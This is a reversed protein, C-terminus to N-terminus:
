ADHKLKKGCPPVHPCMNNDHFVELGPYGQTAYIHNMVFHCHTREDNIRKKTIEIHSPKFCRPGNGCLHSITKAGHGKKSPCVKKLNKRGYDKWAALHYCHFIKEGKRSRRGNNSKTLWCQSDEIIGDVKIAKAKLELWTKELDDDKYRLIALKTSKSKNHM